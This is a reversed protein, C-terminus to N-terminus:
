FNLSIRLAQLPAIQPANVVTLMDLTNTRVGTRRLYRPLGANEEDFISRRAADFCDAPLFIMMLMMINDSVRKTELPPM